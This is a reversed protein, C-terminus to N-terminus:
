VPKLTSERATERQELIEREDISSLPAFKHQSYAYGPHEALEYWSATNSCNQFADGTRIVNYIGGFVVIPKTGGALSPIWRLNEDICMVRM